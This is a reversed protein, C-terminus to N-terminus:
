FEFGGGGGSCSITPLVRSSALPPLYTVDVLFISNRPKLLSLLVLRQFTNRVACGVGRYRCRLTVGHVELTGSTLDGVRWKTSVLANHTSGCDDLAVVPYRIVEEVSICTGFLFVINLYLPEEFELM